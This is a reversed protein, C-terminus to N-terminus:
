SVEIRFDGDKNLEKIYWDSSSRNIYIGFAEYLRGTNTTFEAPIAKKHIVFYKKLDDKKDMLLDFVTHNFWDIFSDRLTIIDKVTEIESICNYNYDEPKAMYVDYNPIIATNIDNTYLILEAANTTLFDSQTYGLSEVLNNWAPRLVYVPENSWRKDGWTMYQNAIDENPYELYLDFSNTDSSKDYEVITEWLLSDSLWHKFYDAQKEVKETVEKDDVVSNLLIIGNKDTKFINEKQKM